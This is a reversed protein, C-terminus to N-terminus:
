LASWQPATSTLRHQSINVSTHSLSCSCSNTKGNLRPFYFAKVEAVNWLKRLTETPNQLACNFQPCHRFAGRSQSQGHKLSFLKSGRLSCMRRLINHSGCGHWGFDALSGQFYTKAFEAPCPLLSTHRAPATVEWSLLPCQLQLVTLLHSHNKLCPKKGGNSALLCQSQEPVQFCPYSSWVPVNRLSRRRGVAGAHNPAPASRGQHLYSKQASIGLVESVAGM